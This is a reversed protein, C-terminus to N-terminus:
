NSHDQSSLSHVFAFMLCSHAQNAEYTVQKDCCTFQWLFTFFLGDRNHIIFLFNGRQKKSSTYRSLVVVMKIKQNAQIIKLRSSFFETSNEKKKQEHAKTHVAASKKKEKKKELIATIQSHRSYKKKLIPVDFKLQCSM